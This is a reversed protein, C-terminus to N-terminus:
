AAEELRAQLEAVEHNLRAIEAIMEDQDRREFLERARAVGADSLTGGPSWLPERRNPATESTSWWPPRWRTEGEAVADAERWITAVSTHSIGTRAAVQRTSLEPESWRLRVVEQEQEYTPGVRRPM